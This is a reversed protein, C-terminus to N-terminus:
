RVVQECSRGPPDRPERQYRDRGPGCSIFDRHRNFDSIDDNGPGGYFRDSVDPPTGSFREWVSYEINDGGRGGYVTDHGRGVSVEDFAGGARVLDDGSGDKLRWEMGPGGFIKDDGGEGFLRIVRRLQYDGMNTLGRTDILDPGGGGRLKLVAPPKRASVIEYDTRGGASGNLDIGVRGDRLTRAVAEDRGDGGRYELRGRVTIEIESRRRERTAGPAFRGESEDISAEEGEARVFIRDTNWVTARGGTCRPGNYHVKIEAGERRVIVYGIGHVVLRNGQPGPPGARAYECRDEVFGAVGGAGGVALLAALAVGLALAAHGAKARM